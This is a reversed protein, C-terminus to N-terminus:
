QQEGNREIGQEKRAKDEYEQHMREAWNISFKAAQVTSDAFFWIQYYHGFGSRCSLFQGKENFKFDSPIAVDACILFEKECYDWLTEALMWAQDPFKDPDKVHIKFGEWTQALTEYYQECYEDVFDRFADDPQNADLTPIHIFKSFRVSSDFMEIALDKTFNNM